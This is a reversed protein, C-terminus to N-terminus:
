YTEKLMTRIMISFYLIELFNVFMRTNTLGNAEALISLGVGFYYSMAIVYHVINM